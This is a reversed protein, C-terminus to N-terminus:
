RSSSFDLPQLFSCVGWDVSSHGDTELGSSSSSLLLFLGRLPLNHHAPLPNCDPQNLQKFKM